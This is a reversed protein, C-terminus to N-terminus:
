NVLGGEQEAFFGLCGVLDLGVFVCWLFVWLWGFMFWLGHGGWFFSVVFLVCGM